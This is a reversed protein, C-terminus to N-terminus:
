ESAEPEQPAKEPEVHPGGAIVRRLADEYGLGDTDFRQERQEKTLRKRERRTRAM